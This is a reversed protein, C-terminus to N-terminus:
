ITYGLKEFYPRWFNLNKDWAHCGFPLKKKNLVLCREPYTEFAFSLAKGIKPIKLVKKKRNLEICFFIDENFYNTTGSKYVDIISKNKLCINYFVATKRLSFGGNGVQNALQKDLAPRNTEKEIINYRRHFYSKINEKLAKYKKKFIRGRLWPAGIYDYDQDCWYALNDNLVFADLQYILIYTYALFREYFTAALMLRNYAFIGNFNDDEFNQISTIFAIVADPLNLSIPKIVILDYNHLIKVCQKFSIWEFNTLESKYIPIVIACKRSNLM